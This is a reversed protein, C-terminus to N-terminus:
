FDIRISFSAPGSPPPAFPAAGRVTALALQDIKSNGSSKGIRVGGLAGGAGISFTVTASGSQGARPKHRALAAWVNSAYAASSVRTKAQTPLPKDAPALTMPFWRRAAGGPQAPAQQAVASAAPKPANQAVFPWPKTQKPAQQAIDPAAKAPKPADALAPREAPRAAETAVPPEPKPKRKPLPPPPLLPVAEAAKPNAADGPASTPEVSQAATAMPAAAGNDAGDGITETAIAAPAPSEALVDRIPAAVEATEAAVPTAPAVSNPKTAEATEIAIATAPESEPEAAVATEVAMVPTAPAVSNAAETEAVLETAPGHEPVAGAETEPEAGMMSEAVIAESEGAEHEAFQPSADAAEEDSQTTSPESAAHVPESAGSEAQAIEIDAGGSPEANAEAPQTQDGGRESKSSAYATKPTTEIESAGRRAQPSPPAQDAVEQRPSWSVTSTLLALGGCVLVISAVFTLISRLFLGENTPNM